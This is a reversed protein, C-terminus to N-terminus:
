KPCIFQSCSIFTLLSATRCFEIKKFVMKAHNKLTCTSIVFIFFMCGGKQGDKFKCRHVYVYEDSKGNNNVNEYKIAVLHYNSLAGEIAQPEAGALLRCKKNKKGVVSM